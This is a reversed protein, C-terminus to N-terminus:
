KIKAFEKESDKTEKLLADVADNWVSKADKKGTKLVFVPEGVQPHDVKFGAIEVDKEKWLQDGILSLIGYDIENFKVKLNNKDKELIEIQMKIKEKIPM